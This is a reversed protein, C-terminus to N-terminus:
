EPVLEKLIRWVNEPEFGKAIAYKSVKDRLVYVNPEDSASLKNELLSRLTSMYDDDPIEKLAMRICNRSVGKAELENVIKLKGWKKMRFKGGAFARAFREENLFGETIMSTLLSEVDDRHLGYSYLKSRVEQHNREQYACYKEIKARAQEPTVTKM